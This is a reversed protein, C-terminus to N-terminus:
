AIELRSVFSLDPPQAADGEHHFRLDTQSDERNWCDEVAESHYGSDDTEKGNSDYGSPGVIHNTGELQPM